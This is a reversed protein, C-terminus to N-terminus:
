KLYKSHFKRPRLIELKKYGNLNLLHKDGSIIVKVKGSIACTIFKDDDPDISIQNNFYIEPIVESNITLLDLIESYEIDQYKESLRQAVEIYETLIENTIVFKLKKDRWAELINSPIGKFFIGSILVNTDIIVKM